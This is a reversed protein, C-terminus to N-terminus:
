KVKEIISEGFWKFEESEKAIGLGMAVKTNSIKRGMGTPASNLWWLYSNEVFFDRDLAPM